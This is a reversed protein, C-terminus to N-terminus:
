RRRGCSESDRVCQHDTCARALEPWRLGGRGEGPTEVFQQGTAIYALRDGFRTTAQDPADLVNRLVRRCGARHSEGLLDRAHQNLMTDFTMSRSFNARERQRLVVLDSPPRIRNHLRDIIAPHGGPVGGFTVAFEGVRPM